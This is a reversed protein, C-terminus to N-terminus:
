ERFGQCHILSCELTEPRDCLRTVGLRLFRERIQESSAPPCLFSALPESARGIRPPRTRPGAQTQPFDDAEAPHLVDLATKRADDRTSARAVGFRRVDCRDQVTTPNACAAIQALPKAPEHPRRLTPM